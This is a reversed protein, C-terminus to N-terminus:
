NSEYIAEMVVNVPGGETVTEYGETIVLDGESIGELILRRHNYVNGTQIPCLTATGNKVKYVFSEGDRNVVCDEPVSIQNKFEELIISVDAFM